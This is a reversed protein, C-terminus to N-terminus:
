RTPPARDDLRVPRLHASRGASGGKTNRSSSASRRASPAPKSARKRSPSSHVAPPDHLVDRDWVARHLEFAQTALRRAVETRGDYTLGFASVFSAGLFAGSPPGELVPAVAEVRQEIAARTSISPPTQSPWSPSCTADTVLARAPSWRARRRQEARGRHLAEASGGRWTSVSSTTRPSGDPRRWCRKRRKTAGSGCCSSGSCWGPRGRRSPRGRRGASNPRPM